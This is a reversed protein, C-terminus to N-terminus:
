SISWVFQMFFYSVYIDYIMESACGQISSRLDLLGDLLKLYNELM